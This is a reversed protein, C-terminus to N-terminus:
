IFKLEKLKEYIREINKGDSFENITKYNQKFKETRLVDLDIKGNKICNRIDEELEKINFARQGIYEDDNPILKGNDTEFKELDPQFFIVGAGQYFSNYCISSYDTIVLKAKELMESYPRNWLSDKLDTNKMLEYAKPHAAIIIKSKDIYKTLMNYVEITNKYTLSEEFNYLQEEYPKWTLMVAVIDESDQNIHEYKIKSFIPLGTILVQEENIYLAEVIADKEKESGAVILDVEEERGKRFASNRGQAKLYTVGHQLFIFKKDNFARRLTKNNSRLFNLHPPCETSIWNTANYIIWYYKLSYKKVVDKNDKIKQYDPVNKDIVFYNKTDNHKQFLLFLDYTGEEAKSSFKEYFVNIKKKRHKGCFRGLHYMISSVFKSELIKFKFTREIPEKLRKVFVLCGTASRRIHIAYDKIYTSKMPNYYYKTSKLKKDRKAVAYDYEVGDINISFRIPGNIRSTDKLIDKMKFKFTYINNDLIMKLKSIIRPYQKLNCTKYLEKDIYFRQEGYNIKYTNVIYALIRIKARFKNLGITIVKYKIKLLKKYAEQKTCYLIRIKEEQSYVAIVPKLKQKENALEEDKIEDELEEDQEEDDIVTNLEQMFLIRNKDKKKTVRINSKYEKGIELMDIKYSETDEKRERTSKKHITLINNEVKIEINSM